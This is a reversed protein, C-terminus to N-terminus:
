RVPRTATEDIEWDPLDHKALNCALHEPRLVLPGEYDLHDRIWAIPPEHGLSESLPQPWRVAADIPLHCVSCTSPWPTMRSWTGPTERRRRRTEQRSLRSALAGLRSIEARIARAQSSQGHSLDILRNMEDQIAAYTPDNLTWSPASKRRLSDVYDADAQQNPTLPQATWGPFLAETDFFCALRAAEYASRRDPDHAVQDLRADEAERKAAQSDLDAHFVVMARALRMQAPSPDEPLQIGHPKLAENLQTAAADASKETM